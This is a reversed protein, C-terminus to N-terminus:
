SAAPTRSQTDLEDQSPLPEGAVLTELLQAGVAAAGPRAVRLAAASMRALRDDFLLECAERLTGGDLNEDDVLVAAGAEVMEAANARQHAAAHPYPVVIM